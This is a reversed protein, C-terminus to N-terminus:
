RFRLVLRRAREQRHIWSRCHTEVNSDTHLFIFPNTTTMYGFHKCPWQTIPTRPGFSARINLTAPMLCARFTFVHLLIKRLISNICVKFSASFRDCHAKESPSGALKAAQQVQCSFKLARTKRGNFVRFRVKIGHEDTGTSLIVRKGLFRQWRGLADALLVSYLHGLHPEAYFNDDDDSFLFEKMCNEAYWRERLIHADHHRRASSPRTAGFLLAGISDM